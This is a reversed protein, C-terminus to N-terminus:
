WMEAQKYKIHKILIAFGEKASLCIKDKALRYKAIKYMVNWHFMLIHMGELLPKGPIYIDIPEAGIGNLEIIEYEGNKVEQLSSYMIDFRGYDFGEIQESIKCFTDAIDYTDHIQFFSAGKSHNANEVLVCIEGELPIHQMKIKKNKRIRAIQLFARDNKYVLQEITDKGNGIVILKHKGIISTCSFKGKEPDRLCFVSLEHTHKSNSQLITKYPHNLRYNQLEEESFLKVVGYGREGIDPKAYIPYTISNINLKDNPEICFYSPYSYAPLQQYMEHKSNGFFGGNYFCPNVASVYFWKRLRIVNFLYYIAIPIYLIYWPWYEWTFILIRLRRLIDM